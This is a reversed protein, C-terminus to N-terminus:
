IDMWDKELWNKKQPKSTAKDIDFFHDLHKDGNITKVTRALVELSRIEEIPFKGLGKVAREVKAFIFDYSYSLIAKTYINSLKALDESTSVNVPCGLVNRQSEIDIAMNSSKFVETPIQPMDVKNPEVAIKSRPVFGELHKNAHRNVAMTSVEFGKATIEKSIEEFTMGSMILRNIEDKFPSNCCKCRAGVPMLSIELVNLVNISIHYTVCKINHMVYRM